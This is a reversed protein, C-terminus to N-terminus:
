QRMTGFIAMVLLMTSGFLAGLAAESKGSRRILLVVSVVFACVPVLWFVAITLLLGWQGAVVVAVVYLLLEGVIAGITWGIFM